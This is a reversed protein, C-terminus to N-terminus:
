LNRLYLEIYLGCGLCLQFMTGLAGRLGSGFAAYVENVSAAQRALGRHLLMCLLSCMMLAPLFRCNQNVAFAAVVAITAICPCWAASSSKGSLHWGALCEAWGIMHKVGPAGEKFRYVQVGIAQAAVM